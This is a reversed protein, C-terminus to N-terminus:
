ALLLTNLKPNGLLISAADIPPKLGETKCTEIVTNARELEELDFYNAPLSPAVSKLVNGYGYGDSMDKGVNTITRDGGNKKIHYNVWRVLVEEYGLKQMADDEEDPKKLLIIEPYHKLTIKSSLFIQTLFLSVKIIQWILGLIIHERGEMILQPSINVVICGISKASEIALNLNEIKHYVSGAPINIAAPSIPPVKGPVASNILKSFRSCLVM